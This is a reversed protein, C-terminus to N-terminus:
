LGYSCQLGFTHCSVLASSTLQLSGDVAQWSWHRLQLLVESRFRSMLCTGIVQSSRAQCTLCTRCSCVLTMLRGSSGIVCPVVMDDFIALASSVSHTVHLASSRFHLSPARSLYSLCSVLFSAQRVHVHSSEAVREAFCACHKNTIRVGLSVKSCQLSRVVRKSVSLGRSYPNEKLRCRICM